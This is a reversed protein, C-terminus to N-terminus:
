AGKAIIADAFHRLNAPDRYYEPMTDLLHGFRSNIHLLMLKNIASLHSVCRGFKMVGMDWKCPHHLRWLCILLADRGTSFSGWSTYVRWPIELATVLRDIDDKAFRFYARCEYDTLSDFNLRRYLRFLRRREYWRRYIIRLRQKRDQHRIVCIGLLADEVTVHGHVALMILVFILRLVRSM